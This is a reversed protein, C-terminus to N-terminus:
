DPQFASADLAITILRSKMTRSFSVLVIDQL